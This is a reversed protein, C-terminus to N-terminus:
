IGKARWAHDHLVDNCPDRGLFVVYRCPQKRSSRWECAVHYFAPLCFFRKAYAKSKLFAVTYVVVLLALIAASMLIFSNFPYLKLSFNIGFGAWPLDFGISKNYIICNLVFNALFGTLVVAEKGGKLRAPLVLALVAFVSPLLIIIPLLVSINLGNM